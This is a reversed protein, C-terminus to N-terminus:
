NLIMITGNQDLEIESVFGQGNVIVNDNIAGQMLPWPSFSPITGGSIQVVYGPAIGNVKNGVFMMVLKASYTGVETGTWATFSVGGQSTQSSAVYFKNPEVKIKGAPIQTTGLAGNVNKIEVKLNSTMNSMGNLAAAMGALGLMNQIALNDATNNILHQIIPYDQTAIFGGDILGPMKELSNPGFMDEKTLLTFYSSESPKVSRTTCTYINNYASIGHLSIRENTDTINFPSILSYCNLIKYYSNWSQGLIGTYKFYDYNKDGFIKESLCYCNKITLDVSNMAYAVVGSSAADDIIKSSGDWDIKPIGSFAYLSVNQQVSCNEITISDNQWGNGNTRAVFAAVNEGARLNAVDINLNKISGNKMVPILSTEFVDGQTSTGSHYLGYVTYGNGDIHGSFRGKHGVDNNTHYVYERSGPWSGYLTSFFGSM